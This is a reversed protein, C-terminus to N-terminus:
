VDGPHMGEILCFSTGRHLCHEGLLGVSGKSDRFSVLDEGLLRVRVPACDSVAIEETLLAPFWYRRMLDGM